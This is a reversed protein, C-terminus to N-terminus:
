DNISIVGKFYKYYFDISKDTNLDILEDILIGIDNISNAFKIYPLERFFFCSEKVKDDKNPLVICPVKALYSFIVGHYRDTIVLDSDEFERIKNQVVSQRNQRSIDVSAMTDTIEIHYGKNLCVAKISADDSDTRNKEIDQRLCLLIKNSCARLNQKRELCLASDPALCIRKAKLVNKVYEYSKNDRCFLCQLKERSYVYKARHMLWKADQRNGFSVTQPMLFMKAKGFYLITNQRIIEWTPYWDGLNGGGHFLVIDKESLISKIFVRDRQVDIDTFEIVKCEPFEKNLFAYAGEAIAADGINVHTPTMLYLIKKEKRLKKSAKRLKNNTLYKYGSSVFYFADLLEERVSMPVMKKIIRKM